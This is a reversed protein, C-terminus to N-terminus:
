RKSCKPCLGSFTIDVHHVEFGELETGVLAKPRAHIDQVSGCSACYFHGHERMNPCYRTAGKHANVQNVLGCTVLTDLCNYVTAISIEPNRQKVRLFVKEATPHDREDMLVSYVMLRQSTLRLGCKSLCQDLAEEWPEHPNTLKVPM